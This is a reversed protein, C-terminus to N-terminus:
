ARIANCGLSNRVYELRRRSIPVKKDNTLSLFYQNKERVMKKFHKKVVWFSRHIQLGQYFNNLEDIADSLNYLVLMEGRITVVRIYHLEASIYIIDTGIAHFKHIIDPINDSIDLQAVNNNNKFNIQNQNSFNLQLIFPANIALWVISVSPIVGGAEDLFLLFLDNFNSVQNWDDLGFIYDFFLAFPLFLVSGVLGSLAVKLWPNFDDFFKIKQFLTIIFILIPMLVTIQISWLILRALFGMGKSAEPQM